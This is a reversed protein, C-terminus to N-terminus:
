MRWVAQVLVCHVVFSREILGLWEPLFISYIGPTTQVSLIATLAPVLYHQIQWNQILTWPESRSYNCIHLCKTMLLSRFSLLQAIFTKHYRWVILSFTWYFKCHLLRIFEFKFPTNLMLKIQLAMPTSVRGVQHAPLLTLGPFSHGPNDSISANMM